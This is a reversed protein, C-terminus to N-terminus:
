SPLAKGKALGEIIERISVLGAENEEDSRLVVKPRERPLQKVDFLPGHPSASPSAAEAAESKPLFPKFRENPGYFTQAMLVHETGILGKRQCYDRYNRAAAILKSASWGEALRANFAHFAPQKPNDPFRDPYVSWAAAFDPTYEKKKRAM